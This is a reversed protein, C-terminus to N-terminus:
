PSECMCPVHALFSRSSIKVSLSLEHNQHKKMRKLDIFKLSGGFHFMARILACSLVLHLTSSYVSIPHRPRKNAQTSNQQIQTHRMQARVQITTSQQTHAHEQKQM